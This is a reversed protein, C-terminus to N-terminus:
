RSLSYTANYVNYEKEIILERGRRCADQFHKLRGTREGGHMRSISRASQGKVEM